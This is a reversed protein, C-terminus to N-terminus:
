DRMLSLVVTRVDNWMKLTRSGIGINTMGKALKSMNSISVNFPLPFKTSEFKIDVVMKPIIKDPLSSKATKEDLIELIAQGEDYGTLQELTEKLEDTYEFEKHEIQTFFNDIDPWKEALTPADMSLGDDFGFYLKERFYAISTPESKLKVLAQLMPKTIACEFEFDVNLKERIMYRGDSAYAYGNRLLLTTAWAKPAQDPVWKALAVLTPLLQGHTAYWNNIKHHDPIPENLLQMRTKLRGAVISMNGAATLNFTIEESKAAMVAKRLSEADVQFDEVGEVPKWMLVNKYYSYMIGDIVWIKSMLGSEEYKIPRVSTIDAQMQKTNVTFKGM